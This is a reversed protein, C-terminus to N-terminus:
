LVPSRVSVDWPYFQLTRVSKKKQYIM